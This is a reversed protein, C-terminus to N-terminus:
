AARLLGAAQMKTDFANAEKVQTECIYKFTAANMGGILACYALAFVANGDDSASVRWAATTLENNRLLLYGLVEQPVQSSSLTAASFTSISAVSEGGTVLVKRINVLPDRFHLVIGHDGVREDVSWGLERCLREIAALGRPSQSVSGNDTVGAVFGNVFGKVVENFLGM